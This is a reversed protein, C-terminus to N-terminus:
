SQLLGAVRALRIAGKISLSDIEAAATITAIDRVGPVHSRFLHEYVRCRRKDGILVFDTERPFGLESFYDIARLDESAIAAEVFLQRQRWHTKLLVDLFRPMMLTRLFGAEHLRRYAQEIVDEDFEPAGIDDPNGSISKGIFTQAVIAEYVQGSLTTLSGLIRGDSGLSFFKTHSSLTVVTLPADLTRDALLGVLQAEEGRMFDLHGVDRFPAADASYRNKVGRIFHIPLPIPVVNPDDVKVINAALEDSNVPAWLHPIEILGLESTIMGSSVVLDIDTPKLSASALAEDFTERIGAKLLANSGNIATDKVGVKRIAKSIIAAQDDVVFTRTNTTGCDITVFPM